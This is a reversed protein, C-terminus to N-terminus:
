KHGGFFLDFRITSIRLVRGAGAGVGAFGSRRHVGEFGANMGLGVDNATFIGFSEGLEGGFVIGLEVGDARALAVEDVGEDVVFPHDATEAGDFGVDPLELEAVVVVHEAGGVTLGVDVGAAVGEGDGEVVEVLAELGELAADVGVLAGGGSGEFFKYPLGGPRRAVGLDRL